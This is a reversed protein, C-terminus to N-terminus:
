RPASVVRRARKPAARSAAELVADYLAQGAPSLRANRRALLVLTRSVVPAVLPVVRLRPHESPLVALAPVVALGVGRAVLGVATSSRQVEYFAHLAVGHPQLAADLFPRNGSEEGPLILAHPELERWELRRERALPHERPCLLVMRDSMLPTAVLEPHAPGQMNIGFEADRRLVADAVGRSSHDLIRIRNRPHRAAYRRIIDPLYHVGVTPVCAVTVDGRLARGTERIEVLAGRLDGLLRRAQPLFDAGVRTLAVSRTTREVLAVGLFAELRQIRRSLATQTIHLSAAARTFSAAEALAVFAEVGLTDIKM